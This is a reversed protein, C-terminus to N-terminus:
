EVYFDFVASSEPLIEPCMVRFEMRLPGSARFPASRIRYVGASGQEPLVVFKAKGDPVLGEEYQRYKVECGSVGMRRSRLTVYVETDQGAKLPYPQTTVSMAVDGFQRTETHQGTCASFVVAIGIASLTHSLRSFM